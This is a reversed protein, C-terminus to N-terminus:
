EEGNSKEKLNQLYAITEDITKTSLEHAPDICMIGIAGLPKLQQRLANVQALTMDGKILVIKDKVDLTEIGEM